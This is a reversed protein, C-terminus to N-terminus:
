RLHGLTEILHDLIIASGRLAELETLPPGSLNPPIHVFGSICRGSRGASAALSHYLVANCLYNGADESCAAPLGHETLREMIADAPFTSPRYAPGSASLQPAAPLCGAADEMVKCANAARRELRFGQAERAVGFHLCASPRHLEFLVELQRPAVDWVTPLVAGVILYNRHRSHATEVLRPVLTATANDAVGPFPGFGTVLIVPRTSSRAVHRRKM